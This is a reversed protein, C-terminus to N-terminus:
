NGWFITFLSTAIVVAYLAWITAFVYNRMPKRGETLGPASLM